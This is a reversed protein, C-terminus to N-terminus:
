SCLTIIFTYKGKDQIYNVESMEDTDHLTYDDRMQPFNMLEHDDDTMIHIDDPLEALDPSDPM